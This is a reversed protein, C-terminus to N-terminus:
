FRLHTPTVIFVKILTFLFNNPIFSNLLPFSNIPASRLLFVSVVKNPVVLETLIMYTFFSCNRLRTKFKTLPM